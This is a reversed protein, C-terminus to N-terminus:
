QVQGGNQQWYCCILIKFPKTSRKMLLHVSLMQNFGARGGATCGWILLRCKQCLFGTLFQSFNERMLDVHLFCTYLYLQISFSKKLCYQDFQIFLAWDEFFAIVRSWRQPFFFFFIRFYERRPFWIEYIKM